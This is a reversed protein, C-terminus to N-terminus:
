NSHHSLFWRCFFFYFRLIGLLFILFPSATIFPLDLTRRELSRYLAILNDTAQTFANDADFM